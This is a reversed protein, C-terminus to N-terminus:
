IRPPENIHLKIEKNLSKAAAAHKKHKVRKISPSAKAAITPLDMPLILIPSLDTSPPSAQKRIQIKNELKIKGSSGKKKSHQFLFNVIICIKIIDNLMESKSNKGNLIPETDNFSM